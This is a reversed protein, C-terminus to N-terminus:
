LTDALGEHKIVVIGSKGVFIFLLATEIGYKGDM